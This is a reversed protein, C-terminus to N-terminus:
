SFTSEYLASDAHFILEEVTGAQAPCSAVGISLTLHSTQNKDIIMLSLNRDYRKAREFEKAIIIDFSRRNYIGTLGDNTAIQRLIKMHKSLEAEISVVLRYFLIFLIIGLTEATAKSTAHNAIFEDPLNQGLRLNTVVFQDLTDWEAVYGLM